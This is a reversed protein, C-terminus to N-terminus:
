LDMITGGITLWKQIQQPHWVKQILEEEWQRLLLLCQEQKWKEEVQNMRNMVEQCEQFIQVPGTVKSVFCRNNDNSYMSSIPKHLPHDYGHAHDWGITSETQFTLEVPLPSLICDLEDYPVNKLLFSLHPFWQPKHLTVYGNWYHRFSTLFCGKWSFGNELDLHIEYIHSPQQQVIKWKGNKVLDNDDHDVQNKVWTSLDWYCDDQIRCHRKMEKLANM